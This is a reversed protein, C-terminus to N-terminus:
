FNRRDEKKMLSQLEVSVQSPQCLDVGNTARTWLTVTKVLKVEVVAVTVVARNIKNTKMTHLTRAPLSPHSQADTIKNQTCKINTPHHIQMCLSKQAEGHKYM